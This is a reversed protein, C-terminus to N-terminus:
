PRHGARPVCFFPQSAGLERLISPASLHGATDPYLSSPRSEAGHAGAAHVPGQGAKPTLLHVGMRLLPLLGGQPRLDSPVPSRLPRATPGAAPCAGRRAGDRAGGTELAAGVRMGGPVPPRACACRRRGLRGQPGQGRRPSSLEKTGM